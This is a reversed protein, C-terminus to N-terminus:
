SGHAVKRSDAEARDPKFMEDLCWRAVESGTAFWVGEAKKMHQIIRRLTRARGPRGSIYPHFQFPCYAPELKSEEYLDDPNQLAQPCRHLVGGVAQLATAGIM